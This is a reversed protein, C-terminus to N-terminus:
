NDAAEELNKMVVSQFRTLPSFPRGFDLIHFWGDPRLIRRVERFARVKDASVLHHIVLSSVVIDFSNDPYPLDYALGYDWAIDMQAQEAKARAIALVEEDGDMGIIQAEPASQKLMVTLTGTGCGLDLVRQNPRINARQILRRKFTEERMGWKLLPDYLPTLWRFSLAPIYRPQKPQM